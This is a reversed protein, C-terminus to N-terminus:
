AVMEAQKKTKIEGLKDAFLQAMFSKLQQLQQETPDFSYLTLLEDQLKSRPSKLKEARNKTYLKIATEHEKIAAIASSMQRPFPNPHNKAYDDLRPDYEVFSEEVFSIEKM